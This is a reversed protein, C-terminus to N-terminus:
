GGNQHPRDVRAVKAAESSSAHQATDPTPSSSRGSWLVVAVLLALPLIVAAASRDFVFMASAGQPFPERNIPAFTSRFRREFFRVFVFENDPIAQCDGSSQRGMSWSWAM